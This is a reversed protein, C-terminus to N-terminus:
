GTTWGGVFDSAVSSFQSGGTVQELVWVVSTVATFRGATDFTSAPIVSTHNDILSSFATKILASSDNGVNIKFNASSAQEVVSFTYELGLWKSSIKPLSVVLTTAGGLRYWSGSDEIPPDFTSGVATSLNIINRRYAGDRYFGDKNPYGM